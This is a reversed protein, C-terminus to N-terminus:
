FAEGFAVYFGSSGKGFAYDFRLNSNDTKDVRIRIGGGLSYKLRQVSLDGVGAFVDGVGAFAAVGFWSLLHIRAESQVTAYNQDRYRGQYYGRMHSDSGLLGMLRFPAYGMNYLGYYQFALVSHAFLRRYVRIDNKVCNFLNTQHTSQSKLYLLDEVQVYFSGASPNLIRDRKDILWNPGLGASWVANNAYIEDRMEPQTDEPKLDFVHQIRGSIGLYRGSKQQWLFSNYLELRKATYFLENSKPTNNGIGYYYEPFYLYSNDGMVIHKNRDTYVFWSANIIIQRYQTYSFKVKGTSYNKTDFYGKLKFLSVVGAYWGTEISKGFAPVPLVGIRRGASATDQAIATGGAYLLCIVLLIGRIM